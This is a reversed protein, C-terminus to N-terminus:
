GWEGSDTSRAKRQMVRRHLDEKERRMLGHERSQRRISWHQGNQIGAGERMACTILISTQRDLLGGLQNMGRNGSLSTLLADNM